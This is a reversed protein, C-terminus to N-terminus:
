EHDKRLDEEEYLAEGTEFEVRWLSVEHKITHGIIKGAQKFFKKGAFTLSRGVVRVRDGVKM